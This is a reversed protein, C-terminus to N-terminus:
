DLRVGGVDLVLATEAGGSFYVIFQLSSVSYQWAYQSFALNFM